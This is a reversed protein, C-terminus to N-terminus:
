FYPTRDTGIRGPGSTDRRTLSSFSIFDSANAIINKTPRLRFAAPWIAGRGLFLRHSAPQRPEISSPVLVIRVRHHGGVGLIDIM